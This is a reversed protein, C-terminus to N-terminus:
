EGVIVKSFRMVKDHLYYGKTIVEVVKGKMTEDQVPVKTVAEHLDVNFDTNLSEIERIGHQKMFDRFKNYILDIGNKMAICDTSTEMSKLAREFDDMVPVISILINEGAHKTLEIKERLTRKRYNDFEASLRLYRDEMEALKEEASAEKEGEKDSAPESESGSEPSIEEVERIEPKEHQELDSVESKNNNQSKTNNNDAVESENGQEIEEPENKKKRTM